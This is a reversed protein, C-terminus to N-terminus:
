TMVRKENFLLNFSTSHLVTSVDVGPHVVHVVRTRNIATTCSVNSSPCTVYLDGCTARKGQGWLRTLSVLAQTARYCIHYGPLPAGLPWPFDWNEKSILQIRLSQKLASNRPFTMPKSLKLPARTSPTAKAIRCAKTATWFDLIFGLHIWSTHACIHM